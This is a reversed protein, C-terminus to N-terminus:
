LQSNEQGNSQEGRAFDGVGFVRWGVNLLNQLGLASYDHASDGV